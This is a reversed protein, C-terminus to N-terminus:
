PSRPSRNEGDSCQLQSCFSYLVTENGNIDLKFVTGGGYAGGNVGGNSTTGYLNGESDQTLASTPYAGDPTGQFSYLITKTKEALKLDHRFRLRGRRCYHWLSQREQRPGFGLLLGGM